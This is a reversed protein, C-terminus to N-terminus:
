KMNVLFGITFNSKSDFVVSKTKTTEMISQYINLGCEVKEGEQLAFAAYDGAKNSLSIYQKDTNGGNTFQALQYPVGGIIFCYQTLSTPIREALLSVENHVTENDIGKKSYKAGYTELTSIKGNEMYAIKTNGSGMDVVYASERFSKPVTAYYAYLAEEEPTVVNVYYKESRLVNAIQEVIPEKAAGSSVVFYINNGPVQDDLLMQIYEKLKARTDEVTAGEEVISSQGFRPKILEWRKEKDINIVFSNFGSAGLEVVAKLSGNIPKEPTFDFSTEVVPPLLQESEKTTEQQISDQETEKDSNGGCALLMSCVFLAMLSKVANKKM